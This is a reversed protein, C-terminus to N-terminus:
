RGGLDFNIGFIWSVDLSTTTPISQDPEMPDGSSFGDSLREEIGVAVGGLAAGVTELLQYLPLETRSRYAAVAGSSLVGVIVHTRRNPM